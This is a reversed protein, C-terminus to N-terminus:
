IKGYGLKAAEVLHESLNQEMSPPVGHMVAARNVREGDRVAQLAAVMSEETWQKRKTSNLAAPASRARRQRGRRPMSRCTVSRFRYMSGANFVFPGICGM